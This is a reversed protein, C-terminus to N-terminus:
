SCVLVIKAAGNEPEVDMRLAQLGPVLNFIREKGYPLHLGGYIEVCVPVKKKLKLFGRGKETKKEQIEEDERSVLPCILKGQSFGARISIRKEEFVYEFEYRGEEGGMAQHGMNKLRGMVRIRNEEARIQPCDEYVSSYIEGDIEAEIRLALCEHRVKYPIQMNNPEKLRYECVGSCILPGAERHFAMSLTGGAAHGGPLYEWDYASVTGYVPGFQVRYCSLEPFYRIGKRGNVPEERTDKGCREDRYGEEEYRKELCEEGQYKDKQCDEKQYEDELYGELGADLIGALVKAHTFTHHVCPSQGATEYHPGGSLLGKVTCEKLLETNRRAADAFAQNEDAFLLYGLGCGDCTRSGWYSWKYNRTGFSNDWAGDELMFELHSALSKKALDCIEQDGKVKGYMALSPLTEEVNYGIDVPRCGRKSQRERPVGEGYVLDNETLIGAALAAMEEARAIYREECLVKGCLLLALANSIPYNINNALLDDFKCLFGATEGLQKRWERETEEDLLDSHFRLCEALSITLFVTTGRWDSDIDNLFSGDIQGVTNKAWSFLARAAAIWPEKSGQDEEAAMRLFPYVAEVCRGHIRGCAPCLIGGDLRKDNTGKIQLRLLSKCWEQMLERCLNGM